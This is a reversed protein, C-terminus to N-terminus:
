QRHAETQGPTHVFLIFLKLARSLQYKSAILLCLTKFLILSNVILNWTLIRRNLLLECIVEFHPVLLLLFLPELPTIQSRDSFLSM